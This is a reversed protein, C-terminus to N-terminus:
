YNKFMYRNGIRIRFSSGCAAYCANFSSDSILFFIMSKFFNIIFTLMFKRQLIWLNGAPHATFDKGGAITLFKQSMKGTDRTNKLDVHQERSKATLLRM